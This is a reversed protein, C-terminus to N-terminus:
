LGEATENLREEIENKYDKFFGYTKLFGNDFLDDKGKLFNAPEIKTCNFYIRYSSNGSVLIELRTRGDFILNTSKLDIFRSAQRQNPDALNVMISEALTGDVNYKQITIPENIEDITAAQIYMSDVKYSISGQSEQISEYTTSDVSQVSIFPTASNTITPLYLNAAM